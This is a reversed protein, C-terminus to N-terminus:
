TVRSSTECKSLRVDCINLLTGQKVGFVYKIIIIFISFLFITHSLNLVLELSFISILAITTISQYINIFTEFWFEFAVIQVIVYMESM